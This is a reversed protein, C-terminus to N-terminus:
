TVHPCVTFKLSNNSLVRFFACAYARIPRPTVVRQCKAPAFVHTQYRLLPFSVAVKFQTQSFHVAGEDVYWPGRCLLRLTGM